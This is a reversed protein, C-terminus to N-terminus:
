GSAPGVQATARRRQPEPELVVGDVEGAELGHAGKGVWASAM